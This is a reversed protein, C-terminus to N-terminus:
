QVARVGFLHLPVVLPAHEAVLAACLDVFAALADLLDKVAQRGVDGGSDTPDSQDREGTARSSVSAADSGGVGRAHRGTPVGLCLGLVAGEGPVGQM